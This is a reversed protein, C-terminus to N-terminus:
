LYVPFLLAARRIESENKNEVVTVHFQRPLLIIACLSLLTMAVMTGASTDAPLVAPPAPPPTARKPSAGGGPSSACTVFLGVALFAVLKVISEVAIALMLGHQHETADNHRTGFLVAFAALSVAVLLPPDGLMPQVPGAWAPFPAVATALSSSVAKLQLA